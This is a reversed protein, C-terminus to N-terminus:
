RLAKEAEVGPRGPRGTVVGSVNKAELILVGRPAVIIYDTQSRHGRHAIVADPLM